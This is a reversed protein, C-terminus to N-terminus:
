LADTGEELFATYSSEARKGGAGGSVIGRGAAAGHRVKLGNSAPAGDHSRSHTELACFEPSSTHSANTTETCGVGLGSLDVHV